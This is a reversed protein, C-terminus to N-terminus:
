VLDSCVVSHAGMLAKGDGLKFCIPCVCFSGCPCVSWGAGGRHTRTTCLRCTARVRQGRQEEKEQAAKVKEADKAAAKDAMAAAAAVSAAVEARHADLLDGGSYIRAKKVTARGAVVARSDAAHQDHSQRIVLAAAARAQDAVDDQPLDMGLNLRALQLVRQRDFPVLGVSKFSARITTPTFAIREAEYAPQMVCDRTPQSTLLARVIKEESLIPVHTKLVAFCKDDLVQLFHSTNAVLWWLHVNYKLASWVVDVQKHSQLQDGLLLCDQGANRLQWEWCFLDMVASFIMSDIFGSETWGYYRPWSARTRTQCRSLVFSSAASDEEGFRGRFIYVSLLPAGDGGVFSLLSAVTAGRTSAVNAREREAAQVRKVALCKGGAVLRCEDYNFVASPPIKRETIFADLEDVWSVIENFM